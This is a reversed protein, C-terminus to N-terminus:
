ANTATVPLAESAFTFALLAHGRDLGLQFVQHNAAQRAIGSGMPGQEVSQAASQSGIVLAPKRADSSASGFRLVKHLLCQQRDMDLTMGVVWVFRQGGPHMRNRSILEDIMQTRGLGRKRFQRDLRRALNERLIVM